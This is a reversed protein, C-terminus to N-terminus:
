FYVFIFKCLDKYKLKKKFKKLIMKVFNRQKM